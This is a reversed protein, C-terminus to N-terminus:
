YNSLRLKKTIKQCKRAIKYGTDMKGSLEQEIASLVIQSPALDFNKDINLIVEDLNKKSNESFIDYISQQLEEVNVNLGISSHSQPDLDILLVKRNRLALCSSLNIATTTKGCGGKQNVVAINRM